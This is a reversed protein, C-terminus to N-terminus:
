ISPTKKHKKHLWCSWRNIKIVCCTNQKLCICKYCIHREAAMKHEVEPNSANCVQGTYTKGWQELWFVCWEPYVVPKRTDLEASPQLDENNDHITTWIHNDLTDKYYQLLKIKYIKMITLHCFVSHYISLSLRCLLCVFALRRNSNIHFMTFTTRDIIILFFFSFGKVKLPCLKHISKILLKLYKLHLWSYYVSYCFQM